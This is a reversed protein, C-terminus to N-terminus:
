LWFDLTQKLSAGLSFVVLDLPKLQSHMVRHVWCLFSEKERSGGGWSTANHRLMWIAM